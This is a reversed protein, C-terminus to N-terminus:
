PKCYCFPKYEQEVCGSQGEYANIRAPNETIGWEGNVKIITAEFNAGGPKTEFAIHLLRVTHKKTSALNSEKLLFEERHVEFIEIVKSLSLTACKWQLLLMSNIYSIVFTAGEKADDSDLNLPTKNFCTCWHMPIGADACTRNPSLPQFLSSPKRLSSSSNRSSPKESIKTSKRARLKDLHILDRFTEHLDFASTLRESNSNLNEWAVPYEDKFWSPMAIYFMPLRDELKGQETSRIGKDLRSGHDSMILLATNNLYGNDNLFELFELLPDDGISLRNMDDHSLRTAWTFQFYSSYNHM